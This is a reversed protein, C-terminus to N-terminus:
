NRWICNWVGVEKEGVIKRVERFFIEGSTYQIMWKWCFSASHIKLRCPLQFNIRRTLSRYNDHIIGPEGLKNARRWANAAMLRRMWHIFLFIFPFSFLFPASAGAILSNICGICKKIWHFLRPLLSFKSIDVQMHRFYICIIIEVNMCMRYIKTCFMIPWIFFPWFGATAHNGYLLPNKATIRQLFAEICIGAPGIFIGPMWHYIKANEWWM